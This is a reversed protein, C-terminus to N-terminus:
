LEKGGRLEVAVTRLEGALAGGPRTAVPRGGALTVAAVDSRTLAYVVVAAKRM